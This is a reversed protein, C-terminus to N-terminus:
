GVLWGVLAGFALLVIGAAGYFKGPEYRRFLRLMTALIALGDPFARLKAVSGPVRDRVNVPVEVVRLGARFTKITLGAEIEFRGGSLELSAPSPATAPSCTRSGSASTPV